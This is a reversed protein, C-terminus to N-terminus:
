ISRLYKTIYNVIYINKDYHMRKPGLIALVGERKRGIKYPSIMITFDHKGSFPSEEGIYIKTPSDSEVLNGINEEFESVMGVFNRIMEVDDFEPDSFVFPWGEKIVVNEKLSYSITLSSSFQAIFRTFEKMFCLENELQERIKGVERDLQKEIYPSTEEKSYLDVFFRYGKDTPVRGASTHPQFLYGMETLEQMDNRITAPSVGLDYNEEIFKSSVPHATTIYEKLIINLIEKRRETTVM